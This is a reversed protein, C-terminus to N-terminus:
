CCMGFPATAGPFTHGTFDTGVMPNVYDALRGEKKSCSSIGVTVAAVVLITFIKRM